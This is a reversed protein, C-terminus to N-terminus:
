KSKDPTITTGYNITSRGYRSQRVEIIASDCGVYCHPGHRDAGLRTKRPWAWSRCSYRHQPMSPFRPIFIDTAEEWTNTISISRQFMGGSLAGRAASLQLIRRSTRFNPLPRAITRTTSANQALAKWWALTGPNMGLMYNLQKLLISKVDAVKWETTAPSNPLDIGQMKSAVDYYCFLETINGCQYRNPMWSGGLGVLM